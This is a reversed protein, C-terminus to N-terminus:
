IKNNVVKILFIFCFRFFVFELVYKGSTIYALCKGIGYIKNFSQVHLQYIIIFAFNTNTLVRKFLFHGPGM